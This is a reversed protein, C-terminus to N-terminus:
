SIQPPTGARRIPMRGQAAPSGYALRRGLRLCPEEVVHYSLWALGATTMLSAAMVAAGAPSSIAPAAGLVAGHLLGAVMQHYMYVGYSYRGLLTLPRWRLPGSIREGACLIAWAIFTVYFVAFLTCAFFHAATRSITMWAVAGGLVLLLGGIWGRSNRCRAVVQPSAFAAALGVGLFLSDMRFPMNVFAGFGPFAWRLIPATVALPLIALRFRVLGVGMLLLPVVLYFQEEIALSWTVGLFNGGFTDRLGMFVNQTMTLYAIDPIRDSFLWAFRGPDVVGRCLFYAGLLLAYVPLIRAARRAYFAGYFGPTHQYRLLIGGILFGSLVFFLDVGSWCTETARVLAAMGPLDIREAGACRFWHWVLVLLIACGRIGDLEVIRGRDQDPDVPPGPHGSGSRRHVSPSWSEIGGM